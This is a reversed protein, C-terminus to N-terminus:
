EILGYFSRGLEFTQRQRFLMNMILSRRYDTYLLETRCPSVLMFIKGKHVCLRGALGYNRRSSPNWSLRSLM